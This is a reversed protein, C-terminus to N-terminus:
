NLLIYQLIKSIEDIIDRANVSYRLEGVKDGSLGHIYAGLIAADFNNLGQSILSAIIGTLCDGMGGSAMKSSGTSNVIVTDGNSILTNYGKLLTVINKDKSYKRCVEIRNNEITKIEQDILSSMEGLHPTFVARGDLFEFLDKNRNLANLGDADVVIPCNSKVIFRRLMDVNLSNNSLGPGCAIVDADEILRDIRDIESYRVVMAEIMKGAFIPYIEDEVVLTVLGAGMRVASETTIYAAGTFQTSGALILCKGYTGKHGSLKRVPILKKYETKDMFFINETNKDKVEDPIGIDIVKIEGTFEM